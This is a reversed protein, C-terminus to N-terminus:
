QNLRKLHCSDPVSILDIFEVREIFFECQKSKPNTVAGNFSYKDIRNLLSTIEQEESLSSYDLSYKILGM